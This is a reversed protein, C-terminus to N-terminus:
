GKNESVPIIPPFLGDQTLVVQPPNAPRNVPHLNSFDQFDKVVSSNWLGCSQSLGWKSFAVTRSLPLSGDKYVWQLAIVNKHSDVYRKIDTLDTPPIKDSYWIILTNYDFMTRMLQEMPFPKSPEGMGYFKIDQGRLGDTSVYGYVPVIMPAVPIPVTLNDRLGDPIVSYHKVPQPDYLFYNGCGNVLSTLKAPYEVSGYVSSFPANPNLGFITVVLLLVISGIAGGVLGIKTWM